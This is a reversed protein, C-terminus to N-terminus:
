EWSITQASEAHGTRLRKTADEDVRWAGADVEVGYAARAHEVTVFGNRVDELVAAPDRTMPDGWGGGGWTNFYLIDGASVEIDDCKAPLYEESGDVRIM